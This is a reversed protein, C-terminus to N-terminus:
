MNIDRMNYSRIIIVPKHGAHLHLCGQIFVKIVDAWYFQMIYVTFSPYISTWPVQTFVEIYVHIYTLAEQM